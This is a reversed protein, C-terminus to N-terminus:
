PKARRSGLFHRGARSIQGPEAFVITRALVYTLTMAALSGAAIALVPYARWVGGSLILATFILYNLTL